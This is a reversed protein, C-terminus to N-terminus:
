PRARVTESNKRLGSMWIPKRAPPRVIPIGSEIGIIMKPIPTIILAARLFGAAAEALSQDSKGRPLFEM